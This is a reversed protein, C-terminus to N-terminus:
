FSSSTFSSRNGERDAEADKLSELYQLVWRISHRAEVNSYIMLGIGVVLPPASAAAVSPSTQVTALQQKVDKSSGSKSFKRYVTMHDVHL